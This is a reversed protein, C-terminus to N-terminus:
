TIELGVDDVTLVAGDWRLRNVCLWPQPFDRYRAYPSGTLACLLARNVGSHGVLAVDGDTESLFSRLAAEARAAAHALTEGGPPPLTPDEGRRAYHSRWRERIESFSLGDWDGCDLESLGPLLM